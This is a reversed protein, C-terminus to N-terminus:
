GSELEHERVADVLEGRPVPPEEITQGLLRARLTQLEVRRSARFLAGAYERHLHCIRALDDLREPRLTDVDIRPPRVRNPKTRVPADAFRLAVLGDVQEGFGGRLLAVLSKM